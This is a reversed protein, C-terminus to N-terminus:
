RSARKADALARLHREVAADERRFYHRLVEAADHHASKPLADRFADWETRVRELLASAEDLRARGEEERGAERARRSEELLRAAEAEPTEFSAALARGRALLGPPLAPFPPAPRAPVVVATGGVRPPQAVPPASVPSPPRCTALAVIGGGVLLVAVPWAARRVLRARAADRRAEEALVDRGEVAAVALAHMRVLLPVAPHAPGIMAALDAITERNTRLTALREARTGAVRLPYPLLKALLRALAGAGSGVPGAPDPCSEVQRALRDLEACTRAELDSLVRPPSPAAAPPGTPSAAPSAGSPAAPAALAAAAPAAPVAVPGAAPDRGRVASLAARADGAPDGVLEGHEDIRGVPPLPESAVSPGEVFPPDARVAAFAPERALAERVHRLVLPDANELAICFVNERGACSASTDGHFLSTGPAESPAVARWLVRWCERGYASSAVRDIAFRVGLLPLDRNV